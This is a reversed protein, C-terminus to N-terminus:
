RARGVGTHWDPRATLAALERLTRAGTKLKAHRIHTRVTTLAIRSEAAIQKPRRGMALAEVVRRETPSLAAHPPSGPMLARPQAPARLMADRLPESFAPAGDRVDSLINPVRAIFRVFLRVFCLLILAALPYSVAVGLASGLDDSRVPGAIVVETAYGVGLVTVCSWVLRPEGVIAAFGVCSLSSATYASHLPGDAVLVCLYLAALVLVLQPRQRLGAVVMDRRRIAYASALLLGVGVLLRRLPHSGLGDAIATLLGGCAVWLALWLAGTLVEAAPEDHARPDM